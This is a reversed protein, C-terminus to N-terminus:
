SPTAWSRKLNGCFSFILWSLFFFFLLFSHDEGRLPNGADHTQVIKLQKSQLDQVLWAWGSGFHGGAAESFQKKFNEFGGFDRDIAEKIKGHPAGGGGNASSAM